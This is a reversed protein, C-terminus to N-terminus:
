CISVEDTEEESFADVREKGPELYRPSLLLKLDLASSSLM